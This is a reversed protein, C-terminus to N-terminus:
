AALEKHLAEEFYEDIMALQEAASEIRVFRRRLDEGGPRGALYWGLHKRATRVGRAEGYFDHLADLHGRIIDRVETVDPEPIAEGSAVLHRMERFV